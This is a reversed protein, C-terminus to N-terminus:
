FRRFNYSNQFEPSLISIVFLGVGLIIGIISLIIGAIAMGKGKQTPDSSIQSLAVAGFIIGALGPAASLFSCCCSPVTLIGLILSVVALANTKGEPPGPPGGSDYYGGRRQPPGESWGTPAQGQGYTGQQPPPPPQYGQPQPQAPQPGPQMRPIPPPGQVPGPGISKGCNGCFRSDQPLEAGCNPCNM